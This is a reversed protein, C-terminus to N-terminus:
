LASLPGGEGRSSAEPAGIPPTATGFVTWFGVKGRSSAGSTGTSLPGMDFVTWFGGKGRRSAEPAGTPRSETGFVSQHMPLPGNQSRNPTEEGRSSPVSTGTPLTATGFPAWLRGKAVVPHKQLVQPGARRASSRGSPRKPVRYSTDPHGQGRGTHAPACAERLRGSDAAM